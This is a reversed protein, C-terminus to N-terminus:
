RRIGAARRKRMYEKHCERCDRRGKRVGAPALNEGSLPHGRLCHTQRAFGATIGQSRLINAKLPVPELHDPNVCSPNRCLHDLTMGDPIAGRHIEYVARHALAATGAMKVRGYGDPQRAGTWDWCGSEQIVWGVYSRSRRWPVFIGQM